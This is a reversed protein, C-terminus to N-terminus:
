ALTPTPQNIKSMVTNWDPRMKLNVGTLNGESTQIDEGPKKELDGIYVPKELNYTYVRGKQSDILYVIGSISARVFTRTSM